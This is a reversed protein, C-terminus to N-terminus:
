EAYVGGGYIEDYAGDEYDSDYKFRSPIMSVLSEIWFRALSPCCQACVSSDIKAM